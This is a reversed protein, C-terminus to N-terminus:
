GIRKAVISYNLANGAVSRIQVLLEFPPISGHPKVISALFRSFERHNLVFEGAAQTGSLWLGSLLLVKYM